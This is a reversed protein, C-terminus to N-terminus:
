VVGMKRLHGDVRATITAVEGMLKSLPTAYRGALQRIRSTLAQSVRDLESQVSAAFTALWKDDVVLTKIEDETLRAYKTAVKAELAKHADKVQKNAASEKEILSLYAELAKREEAKRKREADRARNEALTQKQKAISEATRPM